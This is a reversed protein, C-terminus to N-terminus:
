DDSIAHHISSSKHTLRAIWELVMFYNVNDKHYRKMRDMKFYEVSCFCNRFSWVISSIVDLSVFATIYTSVLVDKSSVHLIKPCFSISATGIRFTTAFLNTPMISIISM